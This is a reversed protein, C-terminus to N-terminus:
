GGGSNSLAEDGQDGEAEFWPVFYAAVDAAEVLVDLVPGVHLLLHISAPSPLLANRHVILALPLPRRLSPSSLALLLLLIIHM